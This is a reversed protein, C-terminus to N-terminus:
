FVVSSTLGLHRNWDRLSELDGFEAANRSPQDCSRRSRRTTKEPNTERHEVKQKNGKYMGYTAERCQNPRQRATNAAIWFFSASKV